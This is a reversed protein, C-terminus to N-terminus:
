NVKGKRHHYNASCIISISWGIMYCIKYNELVEGLMAALYVVSDILPADEGCKDWYNIVHRPNRFRTNIATKWYSDDSSLSSSNREQNLELPFRRTFM